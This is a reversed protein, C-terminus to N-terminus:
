PAPTPHPHPDPSIQPDPPYKESTLKEKQYLSLLPFPSPSSPTLALTSFITHQSKTTTIVDLRSSTTPRLYIDHYPLLCSSVNCILHRHM